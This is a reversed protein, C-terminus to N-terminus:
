AVSMCFKKETGNKTSNMILSKQPIRAHGVLFMELYVLIHEFCADRWSATDWFIAKMMNKINTSSTHDRDEFHYGFKLRDTAKYLRSFPTLHSTMKYLFDIPLTETIYNRM